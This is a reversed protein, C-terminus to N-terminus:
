NVLFRLQGWVATANTAASWDAGTRRQIILYTGNPIVQVFASDQTGNDACLCGNLAYDKATFGNPLAIRLEGGAGAVTTTAIFFDIIVERGQQRYQLLLIDGSGVTWSATGSATFNGASYPIAIPWANGSSQLYRWRGVGSDAESAYYMILNDPGALFQGITCPNYFRYAASSAADDNSLKLVKTGTAELAEVIVIDGNNPRAGLVSFGTITADLTNKMQLVTFHSNLDVTGLAGNSTVTQVAFLGKAMGAIDLVGAESITLGALIMRKFFEEQNIHHNESAGTGLIARLFFGPKYLETM